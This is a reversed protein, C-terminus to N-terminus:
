PRGGKMDEIEGRRLEAELATQDALTVLGDQNVDRNGRAQCWAYLDDVDVKRDGNVDFDPPVPGFATLGAAGLTYVNSDAIAPTSGAGAYHQLIFGPTGPARDLDLQYLDTCPTGVDASVPITGVFLTRAPGAPGPAAAPLHTWGGLPVADGSDWLRVASTGLDSYLQVSRRSGFGSIGTSVAVRNGAVPIPTSATRNCDVSWLLQGDDARLKVLNGSNIGAFYAYSAAYIFQEPGSSAVCLGGFFGEPKPNEFVWAPFPASVADAPFALILGPAFSYEGVSTVFVMPQGYINRAYAPTNGSTAGLPTSWIIEGPDYPNVPTRRPDANLCYLRGAIGFGDFDSIFVRNTLPLDATVVPSANVVEHELQTQWRRQGTFLDVATIFRGTAAIVANNQTDIAPTSWSSLTPAPLLASWRVQATRRDFAFLKFQTQGSVLVSGTVIALDASCVVGSQGPFTIARGAEDTSRTWAPTTIPGPAASAVSLRAPTAGFHTWAHQAAASHGGALM